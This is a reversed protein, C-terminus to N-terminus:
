EKAQPLKIKQGNIRTVMGAEYTLELELIGSEAYYSWTGSLEGAEYAGKSKVNGNRYWYKHKEIPIGQQFAGEFSKEGNDYYWTWLGDREGEIYKGKETHDNVTLFWEGDKLGDIYDGENIVKGTSDYEVAHGDEKGKRYMEERHTAGSAFFWKWSGTPLDAKYAGKQETKGSAYFYQWDGERMGDIYAGQARIEGTPYYLKWPGQRRGISDILGEGIKIDDMYLTGGVEKGNKDFLRFTGHKKGEKYGGIEKISGDEYFEQRVDIVATENDGEQLVGDEYKELRDLEGTKKHIKFIGNKLGNTYNGEEKINGNPHLDRWNGTRRGESNYRNIKEAAYIFGNKFTLLTIIRGDKDYELGKGEEKNNAFSLTRQLEGTEYFFKAPGSKVNEVNTYEELLIGKLSYVREVGNKQNAKYDITKELTSDTRYFKWTSDLEFNKRNGETKLGGDPYYTKWYGDPQGNRMWGESSVSGNDFYFKTYKEDQASVEIKASLMLALLLVFTRGMKERSVFALLQKKSTIWDLM